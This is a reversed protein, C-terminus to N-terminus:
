PECMGLYSKRRFYVCKCNHSSPIDEDRLERLIVDRPYGMGLVCPELVMKFNSFQSMENCLFCNKEYCPQQFSFDEFPMGDWRIDLKGCNM